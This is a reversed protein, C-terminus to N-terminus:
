NWQALDYLAKRGNTTINDQVGKEKATSLLEQEMSDLFLELDEFTHKLFTLTLNINGLIQHNM